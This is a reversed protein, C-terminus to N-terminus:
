EVNYQSVRFLKPLQRRVKPLVMIYLVPDAIYYMYWLIMLWLPINHSGYIIIDPVLVFCIFALGILFPIKLTLQPNNTSQNGNQRLIQQRHKVEFFIYTYTAIFFIIYIVELTLSVINDSTNFLLTDVYGLVASILWVAVIEAVLIKKTVLTRYKLNLKIALARDLTLVTAALLELRLLSNLIIEQFEYQFLTQTKKFTMSLSLLWHYTM